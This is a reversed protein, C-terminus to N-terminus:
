GGHRLWRRLNSRAMKYLGYPWVGLALMQRYDQWEPTVGYFPSFSQIFLHQALRNQQPCHRDVISRYAARISPLKKKSIRDGRPSNDFVYSYEDVLYATGFRKLVRMFFELDQWVELNRDFLGAEIFHAKPAFIQNGVVNEVFLDIHTASRPKRPTDVPEGNRVERIQSYVCAASGYQALASHWGNLLQELRKPLFWDDDDLGTVFDGQATRIAQNRAEAGGASARNTIVKVRHDTASLNDLYNGTADISGDNVVILEFEQHTQGLVSEVARKLSEVRNRTPIYVSVLM